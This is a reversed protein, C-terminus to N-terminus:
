LGYKNKEVKKQNEMKRRHEERIEKLSKPESMEKIADEIFEKLKREAENM